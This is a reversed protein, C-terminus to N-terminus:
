CVFRGGEGWYILRYVIRRVEIVMSLKAQKKVEYLHLWVNSMRKHGADKAWCQKHSENHMTTTWENESGWPMENYSYVMIYRYKGMIYRYKGLKISMTELKQNNYIINHHSEYM